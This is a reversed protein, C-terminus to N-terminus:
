KIEPYPDAEDIHSYRAAWWQFAEFSKKYRSIHILYREEPITECYKKPLSRLFDNYRAFPKDVVAKYFTKAERHCESASAPTGDYRTWVKRMSDVSATMEGGVMDLVEDCRKQWMKLSDPDVVGAEERQTAAPLGAVATPLEPLDAEPATAEGASVHAIDTDAVSAVVPAASLPSAGEAVKGGRLAAVAVAIVVGCMVAAVLGKLLCRWGRVGASFADASAYRREPDVRLAKRSALAYDIGPRLLRMIKGLAWVDSEPRPRYGERLQEPSAFGPTGGAGKLFAIDPADGLGFDIIKVQPSGAVTTVMINSTTLDRHVLGRSHIYGVASLLQSAVSRRSSRSLRGNRLADELTEGQVYEMLVAPGEGPVDVFDFVRVIAPHNLRALLRYEKLLMTRYVSVDALDRRLSKAFFLQDNRRVVGLRFFGHEGLLRYDAIGYGVAGGSGGVAASAFDSGIHSQEEM